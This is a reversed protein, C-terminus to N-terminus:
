LGAQENLNYYDALGNSSLLDFVALCGNCCFLKDAREFRKGGCRTGCHFCLAAEASADLEEHPGTGRQSDKPTAVFEAIM